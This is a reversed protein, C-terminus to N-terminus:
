SKKGSGVQRSRRDGTRFLKKLTFGIEASDKDAAINYRFIAIAM